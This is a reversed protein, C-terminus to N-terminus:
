SDRLMFSPLIHQRLLEKYVSADINGHLCVIPGVGASSIVGESYPEGELNQLNRLANLLYANGWKKRRIFRNGGFGFLNFKSENSVMNWHGKTWVIHETAFDLRIKQNKKSILPKQCIRAVLKEQDLRRSATKRSIPKGTQECFACSIFM